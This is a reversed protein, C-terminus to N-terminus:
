FSLTAIPNQADLKQGDHVAQGVKGSASGAAGAVKRLAALRQQALVYTSGPYEVEPKEVREYM